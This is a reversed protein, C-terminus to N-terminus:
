NDDHIDGQRALVPPKRTTKGHKVFGIVVNDVIKLPSTDWKYENASEMWKKSREKFLQSELTPYFFDQLISQLRMWEGDVGNTINTSGYLFRLTYERDIPPVLNPLAHAMVKSNGVLRTETKMCQLSRFIRELNRWGEEDIGEPSAEQMAKIIPWLPRLSDHFNEFDVMTSGGRGMRHMGWATLLAYVYEAFRDCDTDMAFRLARLHFHLSPGGFVQAEYYAAHATEMSGLLQERKREFM